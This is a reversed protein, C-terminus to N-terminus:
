YFLLSTRPVPLISLCLPLKSFFSFIISLLVRQTIFTVVRRALIYLYHRNWGLHVSSHLLAKEHQMLSSALCWSSDTQSLLALGGRAVAAVREYFPEKWMKQKLSWATISIFAMQTSSQSNLLKWANSLFIWGNQLTQSFVLTCQFLYTNWAFLHCIWFKPTGRVMQNQLIMVLICLLINRICSYPHSIPFTWSRM